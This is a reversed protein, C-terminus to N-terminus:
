EGNGRPIVSINTWFTAYFILKPSMFLGTISLLFLEEKKTSVPYRQIKQSVHVSTCLSLLLVLLLSWMDTYATTALIWTRYVRGASTIWLSNKMSIDTYAMQFMRFMSKAHSHHFKSMSTFQVLRHSQWSQSEWRKCRFPKQIVVMTTQFLLLTISGMKRKYPKWPSFDAWAQSEIRNQRAYRTANIPLM